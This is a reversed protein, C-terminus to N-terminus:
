RDKYKRKNFHYAKDTNSKFSIHCYQEPRESPVALLCHVPLKDTTEMAELVILFNNGGLISRARRRELNKECDAACTENV